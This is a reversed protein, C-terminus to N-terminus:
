ADVKWGVWAVFGSRVGLAPGVYEESLRHIAWTTTGQGSCGASRSALWTELFLQIQPPPVSPDAPTRVRLEQSPRVCWM